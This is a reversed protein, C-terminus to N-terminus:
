FVQLADLLNFIESLGRVSVLHDTSYLLLLSFTLVLERSRNHHSDGTASNCATRLM